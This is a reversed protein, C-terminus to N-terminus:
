YIRQNKARICKQMDSITEDDEKEDNQSQNESTQSHTRHSHHWCFRRIRRIYVEADEEFISVIEDEFFTEIRDKHSIHHISFSRNKENVFSNLHQINEFQQSNEEDSTQKCEWHSCSIQSDRWRAFSSCHSKTSIRHAFFANRLKKEFVFLKSVCAVILHAVHDLKLHNKSTTTVLSGRTQTSLPPPFSIQPTLIKLNRVLKQM